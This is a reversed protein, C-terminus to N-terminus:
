VLHGAPGVAASIFLSAAILAGVLSVAMNQLSTFNYTMTQRGSTVAPDDLPSVPHIADLTGFHIERLKGGNKSRDTRSPNSNAGVQTARRAL